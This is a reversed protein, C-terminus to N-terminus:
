HALATAVATPAPAVTAALLTSATPQAFPTLPDVGIGIQFATGVAENIGDADNAVLAITEVDHGLCMENWAVMGHGVGPYDATVKYPLVSETQMYAILPNDAADGVLITPGPVNYGVVAPLKRADASLPGSEFVAGAWTKAEDDTIPHAQNADAVSEITATVDYPKLIDILRQAAAADWASSGAVITVNRHDRFFRYINPIDDAFVVSRATMGAVAGCTPAPNYAFTSTGHTGSLLETVNVTWTGAPDNAALPLNEDLQGHVACRYLDYRVVGLPDSMKIEMPASGALFKQQADVLSATVEVHQPDTDRTFDRNIIPEGVQVGGIPRIPRAFAYMQGPIFDLTASGHVFPMLKGSVVDYIPRGDDPFTIKATTKVAVGVGGQAPQDVPNMSFNVAFDYEIDGRVQKGAAITPVSSEFPPKIGAKTLAAKIAAALPTANRLLANMSTLSGMAAAQAKPDAIASAAALQATMKADPDPIKVAGNINVTCDATELVTGGNKIFNELGDIVPRDLHVVGTVIVAKHNAALSGDLIDEEVVAQIPYQLLKTALYVTGIGSATNHTVYYQNSKSYLITLDQNTYEPKTFITGIKQYLQNTETTIAASAGHISFQPPSSMGQIGTIFSM